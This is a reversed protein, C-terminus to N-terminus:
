SFVTYGIELLKDYWLKSLKYNIWSNNILEPAAYKFSDIGDKTTYFLPTHKNISQNTHTTGALNQQIYAIFENEIVPKSDSKLLGINNYIMLANEQYMQLIEEEEPINMALSIDFIEQKFHNFLENFTKFNTM